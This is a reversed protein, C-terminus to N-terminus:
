SLYYLATGRISKTPHNDFPSVKTKCMLLSGHGRSAEAGDDVKTGCHPVVNTGSTVVAPMQGTMLKPEAILFWMPEVLSGQQGISGTLLKPEASHFWM